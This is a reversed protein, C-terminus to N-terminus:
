VVAQEVEERLGSGSAACVCGGMNKWTMSRRFIALAQGIVLASPSVRGVRGTFSDLAVPAEGAYTV